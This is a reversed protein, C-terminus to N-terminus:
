LLMTTPLGKHRWVETEFDDPAVALPYRVGIKKAFQAPDETDMMTDFKSDIVAIRTLRLPQPTESLRANRKQVASV